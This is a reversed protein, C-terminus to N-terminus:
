ASVGKRDAPSALYEQVADRVQPRTVPDPGLFGGSRAGVLVHGGVGFLEDAHPILEELPFTSERVTTKRKVGSVSADRFRM